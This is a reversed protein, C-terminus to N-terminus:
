ECPKCASSISGRGKLLSFNLRFKATLVHELEFIFCMNGRLFSSLFLFLLNVSFYITVLDLVLLNFVDAMGYM